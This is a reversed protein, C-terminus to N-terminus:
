KIDKNVPELPLLIEVLCGQSKRNKIYFTGRHSEIVERCIALGLGLGNAKTSYFSDMLKESSEKIGMGNDQVYIEVQQPGYKLTVSITAQIQASEAKREACSEIANKIVNLLLQSFGVTDIYVARSEGKVTLSTLHSISYDKLLAFVDNILPELQSAEKTIINKKVLLRLRRIISDAKIVQQNINELIPRLEQASKGKDIRVMAGESYNRIVSLPQNIEHALSSGLEGVVAVRQAHELMAGKENLKKISALLLRKSKSFRYELIVHYISFLILIIVILSSWFRNEILWKVVQQIFPVKIPYVNLEKLLLDVDDHSAFISWGLSNIGTAAYHDAPLSLLARTVLEALQQPVNQTKAFSWNPYLPTSTLCQGGAPTMDNLVRFDAMQIGREKAMAELQCVPLIAADIDGAKLQYVLQDIPFGSYTVNSFLANVNLKMQNAQYVFALYGGFANESVAGIRRGTLEEIDVYPSDAKVAFASGIASVSGKHFLSKLTALWTVHYQLSLSVSQAPNTVVFDLRQEKVALELEDNTFPELRFYYGPIQQELWLMMPHWKEIAYDHGRHALVGVNIIKHDSSSAISVEQAFVDHSDFAIFVICMISAILSKTKLLDILTMRKNKPSRMMIVYLFHPFGCYSLVAM